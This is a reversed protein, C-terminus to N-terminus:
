VGVNQKKLHEDSDELAWLWGAGMPRGPADGRRRGLPYASLKVLDQLASAEALAMAMRKVGQVQRGDGDAGAPVRARGDAM